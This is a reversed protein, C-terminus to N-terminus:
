MEGGARRLVGVLGMKRAVPWEEPCKILLITKVNVTQWFPLVIIVFSSKLNGFVTRKFGM